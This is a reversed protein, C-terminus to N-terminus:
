HNGRFYLTSQSKYPDKDLLNREAGIKRVKIPFRHQIRDRKKEAHSSIILQNEFVM